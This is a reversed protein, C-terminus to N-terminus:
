AWAMALRAATPRQYLLTELLDAPLTACRPCLQVRTIADGGGLTVTFQIPHYGCAHCPTAAQLTSKFHIAEIKLKEM